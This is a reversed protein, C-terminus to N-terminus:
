NHVVNSLKKLDTPLTTLKAVDLDGVKIKLNKLSTLLNVLKNRSEFCCFGKKHALNSTNVDRTRQLEKKILM